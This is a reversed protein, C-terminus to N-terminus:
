SMPLSGPVPDVTVGIGLLLSDILVDCHEPLISEPDFVVRYLLPGVVLDVTLAIDLDDRLEGATIGDLVIDQIRGRRPEIIQTRYHEALIPNSLSVGVMCPLLRGMPSRAHALMNRLVAVLRERATGDPVAAFPDTRRAVAHIVLAEKSPWRRYITAKSVGAAAAVADMSLRDFGQEVLLAIAADIIAEDAQASRPRGPSRVAAGTM